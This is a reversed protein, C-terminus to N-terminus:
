DKKKAVGSPGPPLDAFLAAYSADREDVEGDGDLDFDPVYLKTAKGHEIRALDGM